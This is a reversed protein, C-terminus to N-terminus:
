ILARLWKPVPAAVFFPKGNQFEAVKRFPTALNDNDFILVLPLTKIAAQLNAITRPFRAVMKEGPVDHGGQSVRM